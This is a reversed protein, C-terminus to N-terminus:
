RCSRGWLRRLNAFVHNERAPYRYVYRGVRGYGQGSRRNYANLVTSVADVSTTIGTVGARAAQGTVELFNTLGGQEIGASLAQYSASISDQIAFGTERSFARVDALMQDTAQRTAQPMLTTVEAWRKEVDTFAATANAAFGVLVAGAAAAAFTANGAIAGGIAQSAIGAERSVSNTLGTFGRHVSSLGQQTRNSAYIEFGLQSRARRPM